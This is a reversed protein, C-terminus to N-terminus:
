HNTKTLNSEIANESSDENEILQRVLPALVRAARRSNRGLRVATAWSWPQLATHFIFKGTAFEGAADVFRDMPPMPFELEDSIAKVAVFSVGANQAAEAVAAAEMDVADAAFRAALARKEEVGLVKDATLLVHNGDRGSYRKATAAEVIQAALFTDGVKMEGLSGALGASVLTRPHYISLAAEAANRAARKGIGGCVLVARDTEFFRLKRGGREVERSKWGRVIASIEQQLAAVIAVRTTGDSGPMYM